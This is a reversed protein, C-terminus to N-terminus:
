STCSAYGEARQSIDKRLKDVTDLLKSVDAAKDDKKKILQQIKEEFEQIQQLKDELQRKMKDAEEMINKLREAAESQVTQNSNKQKFLELLRMVDDLAPETDTTQKLASEAAEKADRAAERNQESKKKLAEIEDQLDQPPRTMLKTEINDLKDKIDQIRDKAMDRERSAADLDDNAKDQAKEAEYIDGSIETVDINKTREKLEGAKQLLDGTTKAPQGLNKLDDLYNTTNSLQTNIDNIMSRIQDPSRPLQIDLVARAMKEIDEPPVLDDMLYDKVRQLLEKTKNKERQLSDINDNIRDHLDKAQGKTDQAARKADNIKNNADELSSPLTILKDKVREAMESAKQSVPVVGDCNPGGCKRKGLDLTCLAGGCGSCDELGAAGCIKNNFNVESLERVKKELPALDGRSSCKSLKHKVEQRSDMSDELAKNANRVRKEDSLFSEHLKQIEDLLEDLDELDESDPDESLKEKLKNLLKEFELRINDIETNLLPSADILIVNPDISDKLKGVMARLKEAREVELASLGTLDALGDLETHMQLMWQRPRSDRPRLDDGHRPIFTRMRQAARQVDMVDGAWLGTCPHCEACAPFASDYGPSCEDCFIGTVGVRCLCEGTEPDCSPRETGELNCDCSICQLDPNGFHNEGCEDCQRGGFEPHCPCQGTVKRCTNSFTNVTDCSCPQCGSAGDLNWYGDECEDCLVGQVGARCPCQGTRSDCFCPSGLPCQTVETGRRDCSCEKCDQELANGYHGPKCDQCGLGTTNHLCHQCGGTVSDCADRDDPDINNNCPCRDCGVGPSALDGYFGPSCRDCHPGTHGPRCNCTLSLSQPDHQCSTAFFRGSGQVDPCQCPECPRRSVRDGYYGGVCRDCNPGITHDRCNLCEGTEEDCAESLGNCECPRCFPFGWFGAHCRDCRQGTVEAHCSCQGRVQDCLESVSGRPDCECRQCGDPGFGFTLPACTDCCRGIVNSKCECLGGLKSCSPGLSGVVNCRCIVAGRHIRASMSKALGECVKPLPEQPQLEAALGICRFRRFSDLDTQSCFDQVSEISPILGMSDILVHSNSSGDSGPQQNFVVDVFYRGGANLCVPSDLIGGRSNGPLILTKSGTPDSSCGGDGLSAAIISVSALWDSPFEPEYRIVLQYDMSSPLNDVTFRLGAGELVRVLGLGTWTILQGVTRQRPIIQLAYGTELPLNQQRKQRALHRTRRVLVVRGNTFKLNYGQERFYKECRPLVVPNLLSSSSPPPPPPSGGHLPAALEAEYLFYDLPPLFYGPSPDSCRRGAMNPLCHCQGEPSCTTSHAGGIDCDCPSCRFGSNGLGWFGALCRDCLPGIALHECECSGTLQNCSGVSGLVDCRCVQCGAPDDQRLNFFGHKCRDCRRGEANEKCVCRGSLTDCLGGGQSGAPDCDCPICAHLNEPARQPDRYLFPQCRECQPGVRDHRCNDCVGGSVGGTAKFHAADFHCSDSHGHCNCRRCINATNEGGPRWPSDHHFDECRECNEGATNHRCVCRGHVMGTQTFVDGRGGDVPMCQSAHGHCFCSGRVVMNYLAYYYKDQPNRRRRGLTDGLTFLRTFNVRINTLTILDQVNAAYPNEIEFIPDLAKLVVEGDTSPDSGSYRGDCVVDDISDAPQDSVSPFHLSCDEAFYRFVKWNQGFDKSREVVMAAPRFSKFTLVLHSFQFVTELNLQVSVQHVGNESQWWKLKWDADFTTIVNEMRHSNPNSYRDYSLRSDCAFCKQEEELYGIICYNQPGDLGCTSSASLQAARGVMLDGLQPNCSGSRCQDQPEHPDQPEQFHQRDQLHQLDQPDNLGQLQAAPLFVQPVLQIEGGRAM